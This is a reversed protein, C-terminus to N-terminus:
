QFKVPNPTLNFAWCWNLRLWVYTVGIACYVSILMQPLFEYTKALGFLWHLVSVYLQVGILGFLYLSEWLSLLPLGFRSQGRHKLSLSFFAYSSYLIIMLLKTPSEAERFLLPTFSFHGVTSLLLFISAENTRFFVFLSLPIIMMLIAKEHVHWGFLFSSFACMIVSRVLEWPQNPRNWLTYMSPMMFLVSLIMTVLPSISPLVCHQYEGVLGRTMAAPVKYADIMDLKVGIVTLVKDLFNYLAWVNPAWYSHTLGRKFPFLQTLIRPLHNEYIVFPLFSLSFVTAVVAALKLFSFLSFTRWNFTRYPKSEFCSNRLLYLFYAPAIYLYIHKFNLLVSFWFAAQIDNLELICNLSLLLIGYLFGNYQFHIHDLLLLGVNTLLLMCLIFRDDAWVDGQPKRIYKGITKCCRYVAYAYLFDTIIVSTRMFVVTNWSSYNLNDIQVMAPEVTAAVYSLAYEFWAFFPPYDLTWNSTTEYYWKSVPVNHTIALWHRHVEFDTSKYSPILLFKVATISFVISWYLPVSEM